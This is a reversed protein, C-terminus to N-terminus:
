PIWSACEMVVIVNLLISPAAYAEAGCKGAKSMLM